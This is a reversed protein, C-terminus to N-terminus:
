SYKLYSTELLSGPTKVKEPTNGLLYIANWSHHGGRDLLQIDKNISLELKSIDNSMHFLSTHDADMSVKGHTTYSLDNM